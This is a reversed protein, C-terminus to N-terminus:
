ELIPISVLPPVVIEINFLEWMPGKPCMPDSTENKKHTPAPPLGLSGGALPLSRASSNRTVMPRGISLMRAKSAAGKKEDEQPGRPGDPPSGLRRPAERCARLSLSSCSCVSLWPVCIWCFLFKNCTPLFGTGHLLGTYSVFFSVFSFNTVDTSNVCAHKKQPAGQCLAVTKLLADTRPSRPPDRSM